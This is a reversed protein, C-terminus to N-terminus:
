TESTACPLKVYRVATAPFGNMPSNLRPRGGRMGGEVGLFLPM